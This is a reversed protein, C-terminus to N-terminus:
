AQQYIEVCYLHLHLSFQCLCGVIEHLRSDSTLLMTLRMWCQKVSSQKIIEGQYDPHTVDPWCQGWETLMLASGGLESARAEM